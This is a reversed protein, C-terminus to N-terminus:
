AEDTNTETEPPQRMAKVLAYVALLGLISFGVTPWAKFAAWTALVALLGLMEKTRFILGAVLLLVLALKFAALVMSVVVIAGLIKWM